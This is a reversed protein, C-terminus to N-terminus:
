DESELDTELDTWPTIVIPHYAAQRAAVLKGITEQISGSSELGELFINQLAPLVDTTRGEVLEQLAPAILSALNDSLYLNKVAMFPRFLELWERNEVSDKRDPPSFSDEHFYLDELMYLPPLCSTCVQEVAAVQWDLGRCWITVNFVFPSTQSSFDISAGGDQFSIEVSKLAKSKRTHSIFRALQPTDFVIDNFFTINLRNLQPADVCAVLDDFYESVGKFRIDALSPLVSRTKPPPRRSAQDPCSRPSIFELSLRELSTLTSLVAVMVDPSIYGSHPINDLSLSVLHTTFLLLNPLGPFPIGDLSLYELRPASGGLFSDPVVAMTENSKSNFSRLKLNTQEPFPQQMAGLLIDLLNKADLESRCFINIDIRYVRDSCELAAIINDVSGITHDIDSVILPFAPWVDLMDRARTRETCVLQLNLHRPSGFVICRWRRCVHVLTQWATERKVGIYDDYLYGHFNFIELLVDDPLTDISTM